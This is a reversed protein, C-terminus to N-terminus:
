RCHDAMVHPAISNGELRRGEPEGVGRSDELEKKKIYYNRAFSEFFRIWPTYYEARFKLLPVSDSGNKKKECHRQRNRRLSPSLYGCYNLGM